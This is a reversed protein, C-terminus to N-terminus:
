RLTVTGKVPYTKRNGYPYQFKRIVLFQFLFLGGWERKVIFFMDKKITFHIKRIRHTCQGLGPKNTKM